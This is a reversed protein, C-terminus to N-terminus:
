KVKSVIVIPQLQVTYTAFMSGDKGKRDRPLQCKIRDGEYYDFMCIMIAKRNKRNCGM